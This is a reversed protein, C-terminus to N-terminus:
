FYYFCVNEPWHEYAPPFYPDHHELFLWEVGSDDKKNESNKLTFVGICHWSILQGWVSLIKIKGKM